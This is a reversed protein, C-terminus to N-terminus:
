YIICFYHRKDTQGDTHKGGSVFNRSFKTNDSPLGYYFLIKHCIKTKTVRTGAKCSSLILNLESVSLSSM